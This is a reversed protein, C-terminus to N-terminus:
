LAVQLGVGLSFLAKEHTEGPSADVIGVLELGFGETVMFGQRVPFALRFKVADSTPIHVGPSVGIRAYLRRIGCAECGFVLDLSGAVLFGEVRRRRLYGIDGAVQVGLLFPIGTRLNYGMGLHLDTETRDLNWAGTVNLRWANTFLWPRSGALRYQKRELGDSVTVVQPSRRVNLVFIYESVEGANQSHQILRTGDITVRPPTSSRVKLRAPRGLRGHVTEVSHIRQIGFYDAFFRKVAPTANAPEDDDADVYGYEGSDEDLTSWTLSGSAEDYDSKAEDQSKWAELPLQIEQRDVKEELKHTEKYSFTIEDAEECSLDLELLSEVGELRYGGSSGTVWTEPSELLLRVDLSQLLAAVKAMDVKCLGPNIMVARNRADAFETNVEFEHCKVNSAGVVRPAEYTVKGEPSWVRLMHRGPLVATPKESLLTSGLSLHGRTVIRATACPYQPGLTLETPESVDYERLWSTGRAHWVMLVKGKPVIALAYRSNAPLLFPLASSIPKTGFPPVLLTARAEQSTPVAVVHAASLYERLSTLAEAFKREKSALRRLCEGRASEVFFNQVFAVDPVSQQIASKLAPFADLEKCQWPLKSSPRELAELVTQLVQGFQKSIESEQTNSLLLDSVAQLAAVGQTSALHVLTTSSEKSGLHRLADCKSGLNPQEKALAKCRLWTEDDANASRSLLVIACLLLVPAALRITMM